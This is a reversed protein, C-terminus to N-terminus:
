IFVKNTQMLEELEYEIEDYWRDKIIDGQRNDVCYDQMIDIIRGLFEKRDTNALNIESDYLITGNEDRWENDKFIFRWVCDDEGMYNIEGSKTIPELNNLIEEINESYYKDNGSVDLRLENENFYVDEFYCDIQSFLEESPKEKFIVYGSYRAYYGM